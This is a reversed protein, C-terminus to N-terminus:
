FAWQWGRGYIIEVTVWGDKDSLAYNSKPINNYLNHLDIYQRSDYLYIHVLGRPFKEKLYYLRYKFEKGSFILLDTRVAFGAPTLEAHAKSCLDNFDAEFSYTYRKDEKGTKAKKCIMPKRGGLFRYSPVTGDGDISRLGLLILLVVAIIVFALSIKIVSKEM